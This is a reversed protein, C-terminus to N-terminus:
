RVYVVRRTAEADPAEPRESFLGYLAGCRHELIEYESGTPQGANIFEGNNRATKLIERGRDNFALVRVHPAPSALMERTIGLYACMLM